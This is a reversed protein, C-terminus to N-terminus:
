ASAIGHGTSVGRLTRATHSLRAGRTVGYRVNRPMSCPLCSTADRLLRRAKNYAIDTVGM